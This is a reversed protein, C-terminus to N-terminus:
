IIKRFRGGGLNEIMGKMEMMTLISNLKIINIKSENSLMNAEKEEKELLNLIIKEDENEPYNEVIKRTKKITEVNLEELIDESKTVLKAGKQILLNTGQSTQSFINGPIAFVERNYELAEYATILAGSKEAAEVVLIGLSLGAIIRNRLPFNQKYPPTGPPFESIILGKHNIIEEALKTNSTPYVMDVGCGLVGITSGNFDIATKHAVADIGLALGSVITLGSETCDKTLKYTVTKGYSSYKRSGVIGLCPNNFAALDGKMYLIVPFDAIELLLKPYQKDYMTIVGTDYKQIKEIEKQPSYQERAELVLNALKPDIKSKLETDRIKWIKELDYEFAALVKKLTQSGIKPHANLALLYEIKM